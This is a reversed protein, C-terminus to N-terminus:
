VCASRLTNTPYLTAEAKVGKWASGSAHVGCIQPTAAATFNGVNSTKSCPLSAACVRLTCSSTSAAGRAASRPAGAACTRGNQMVDHEAARLAFAQSDTAMLWPSKRTGHRGVALRASRRTIYCPRRTLAPSRALQRQPSDRPLLRAHRVFSIVEVFAAM